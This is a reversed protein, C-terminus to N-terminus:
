DTQTEHPYQVLTGKENKLLKTEDKAPEPKPEQAEKKKLWIYRLAAETCENEQEHTIM